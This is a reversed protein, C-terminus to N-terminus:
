GALRGSCGSCGAGVKVSEVVGFREGLAVSSGEEPLEVYM